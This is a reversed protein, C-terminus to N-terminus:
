VNPKASTLRWHEIKSFSEQRVRESYQESFITPDSLQNRFWTMQRKAYQRTAAQELGIEGDLHRILERLGLARTAPLAPDLALGRMARAEELAGNAVMTRFRSDCAAHLVERPPALLLTLFGFGEGASGRGQWDALSTGTAEWVEMARALRQRDSVRLRGAMVPDRSALEAHFAEPGIEEVRARVRSRIEDPVPPMPSLGESLAKLYLGTGGVVIPLKGAEAAARIEDVARERWRGASSGETVPLFGYLRHPARAEAAADPRATLVSMERYVQMADANIVVGDFHDALDLALASKGSATPGALLVVQTSLTKAERSHPAM